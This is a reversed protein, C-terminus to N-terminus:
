SAESGKVAVTTDDDAVVGDPSWVAKEQGPPFGARLRPASGAALDQAELLRVELDDALTEMDPLESLRAVIARLERILQDQFPRLSEFDECSVALTLRTPLFRTNLGPLAAALLHEEASELIEDIQITRPQLGGVKLLRRRWRKFRNSM